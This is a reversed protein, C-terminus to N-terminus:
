PRSPPDYSKTLLTILVKIPDITVTNIVRIVVDWSGRLLGGLWFWLM